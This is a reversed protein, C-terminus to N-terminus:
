PKDSVERMDTHAPERFRRAVQWGILTTFTGSSCLRAYAAGIAGFRPILVLNAVVNITLSILLTRWVNTQGGTALMFRVLPVNLFFYVVNWILVQMIPGAPAFRTGYVLVILEPGLWTIIVALPVALGGMIWMSRKVLRRLVNEPQALARVLAPYLVMRYAQSVLLVIMMITVAASYWAVEVRSLLISLLVVDLQYELGALISTASFAPMVKLLQRAVPRDYKFDARGGFQRLHRVLAGALALAGAFSGIPWAFAILLLGRQTILAAIVGILKVISGVSAAVLPWGFHDHANLVSQSLATFTDILISGTIIALVILDSASYLRLVGLVILLVLWAAVSAVFRIVSYTAFLAPTRGPMRASERVLVDDLGVFLTTLIALYGLALSFTGADAPQGLRGIAVFTLTGAARQSM